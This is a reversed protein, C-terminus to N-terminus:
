EYITTTKIIRGSLGFSKDKCMPILWKLNEIVNLHQIRLTDVIVIQEDTKTTTLFIEKSVSYFFHCIYDKGIIDAFEVWDDIKLGAEEEFERTMSLNPEEGIEIKGGVGNM